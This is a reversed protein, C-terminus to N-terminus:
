VAVSAQWGLAACAPPRGLWDILGAKGAGDANLQRFMEYLLEAPADGAAASCALQHYLRSREHFSPDSNAYFCHGQLLWIQPLTHMGKKGALTLPQASYCSLLLPQRSHSDAFTGAHCQPAASHLIFCPEGLCPLKSKNVATLLDSLGMMFGQRIDGAKADRSPKDFMPNRVLHLVTATM